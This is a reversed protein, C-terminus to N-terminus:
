AYVDSWKNMQRPLENYKTKKAGCQPCYNYLINIRNEPFAGGCAYYWGCKCFAYYAMDGIYKRIDWSHDRGRM